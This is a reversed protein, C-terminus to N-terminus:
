KKEYKRKLFSELTQKLLKENTMAFEGYLEQAALDYAIAADIPDTFFGLGTRKKNKRIDARYKKAKADFCVGKFHSSFKKLSSNQSNESTKVVRLNSRRNDLKDGNIHDVVYGSAPRMILRHLYLAKFTGSFYIRHQAYGDSTLSWNYMTVLPADEDDVISVAGSKGLPVEMAM